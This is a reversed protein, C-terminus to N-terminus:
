RALFKIRNLGPVAKKINSLFPIIAAAKKKIKRPLAIRIYYGIDELYLRYKSYKGKALMLYNKRYETLIKGVHSTNWVMPKPNGAFHLLTNEYLGNIQPYMGSLQENTYDPVLTQMEEQTFLFGTNARENFAVLNLWGQEPCPFTRNNATYIDLFQKYAEKPFINQKTLMIGVNAFRDNSIRYQPYATEILKWNFFYTDVAEKDYTYKPKDLVFDYKGLLTFYTVPGLFVTDADVILTYEFPSEWFAIMKTLGWGFSRQRLLPDKVNEKKIISYANKALYPDPTFHGDILLSVPIEPMHKKISAFCAKALRYDFRSLVIIIGKNPRGSTM